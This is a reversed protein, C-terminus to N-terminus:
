KPAPTPEPPLPHSPRGVSVKVWRHRKTGVVWCLLWVEGDVGDSPDLPTPWVRATGPPLTIPHSRRAAERCIPTCFASGPSGPAIPHLPRERRYPRYGRGQRPRYSGPRASPPQGAIPHSPAEQFSSRTPQSERRCRSLIGRCAVGPPLPPLQIPHSRRAAERSRTSDPVTGPSDPDPHPNLPVIYALQGQGM